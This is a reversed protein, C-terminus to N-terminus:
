QAIHAQRVGSLKKRQKAHRHVSFKRRSSSRASQAVLLVGVGVGERELLNRFEEEHNLAFM